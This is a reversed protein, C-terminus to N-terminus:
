QKQKEKAKKAVHKKFRSWAFQGEIFSFFAWLWWTSSRPNVNHKQLYLPIFFVLESSHILLMAAILWPQITWSFDAFGTGLLREVIQGRAFWWRQSYALFTSATALFTILYLGTPAVFENVTIDSRQLTSRCSKDMEVVRERTERYSKLPPDFPVRYSKDGCSLSM